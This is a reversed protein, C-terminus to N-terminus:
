KRIVQINKNKWGGGVSDREYRITSQLGQYPTITDKTLMEIVQTTLDYGLLDYRPLTSSLSHHFYTDFAASYTSDVSDTPTFVSTYLQNMIIKENQWSYRSYLTLHKASVWPLLHPM